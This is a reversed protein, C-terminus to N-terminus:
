KIYANSVWQNTGIKSWGNKTEYVTVKAGNSLHGVIRYQTGAGIRIRLSSGVKVYMTKTSTSPASESLYTMCVWQNDGIRGWNNSKTYVTVKAGKKLTKVVRYSTGAGKRVNLVSATVYMDKKMTTDGGSPSPSPQPNGNIAKSLRNKFDTWRSPNEVMPAPCCKGLLTM